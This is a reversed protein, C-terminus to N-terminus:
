RHVFEETALEYFPESSPLVAEKWSHTSLYKGDIFGM